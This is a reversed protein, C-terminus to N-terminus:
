VEIIERLANIADEHQFYDLDAPRSMRLSEKAELLERTSLRGNLMRHIIDNLEIQTIFKLESSSEENSAVEVTLQLLEQQARSLSLPYPSTPAALVSVSYTGLAVFGVALLNLTDKM